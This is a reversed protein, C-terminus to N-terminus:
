GMFAWGIFCIFFLTILGAIIWQIVRKAQRAERAAKQAARLEKKAKSM